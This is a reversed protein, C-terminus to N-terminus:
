NCLASPTNNIQKLHYTIFSLHNIILHGRLSGWRSLGTSIPPVIVGRKENLQWWSIVWTFHILYEEIYINLALFSFIQWSKPKTVNVLSRKTMPKWQLQCQIPTWNDAIQWHERQRQRSPSIQFFPLSQNHIFKCLGRCSSCPARQWQCQHNWSGPQNKLLQQSISICIPIMGIMNITTQSVMGPWLQQPSAPPPQSKQWRTAITGCQSQTSKSCFKLHPGQLIIAGTRSSNLLVSSSTTKRLTFKTKRDRNM